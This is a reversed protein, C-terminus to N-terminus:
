HNERIVTPSSPVFSGSLRITAWSDVMWETVAVSVGRIKADGEGFFVHWQSGTCSCGDLNSRFRSVRSLLGRFINISQLAKSSSGIWASLNSLPIPLNPIGTSKRHRQVDCGDVLRATNQHGSSQIGHTSCDDAFRPFDPM